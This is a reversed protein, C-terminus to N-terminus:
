TLERYSNKFKKIVEKYDHKEVYEWAKIYEPSTDHAISDKLRKPENIEDLFVAHLGAMVPIHVLTTKTHEEGYLERWVKTLKASENYTTNDTFLRHLLEHTMINVLEDDKYIVGFVMPSSFAHFWPAVFVDITNQYFELEFVDCMAKLIQNNHPKWAKRYRAVIELYFEPSRLPEGNGWLQNLPESAADALLWAYQFRVEPYNM